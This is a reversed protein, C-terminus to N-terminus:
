PRFVTRGEKEWRELLENLQQKSRAQEGSNDIVDWGNRSLLLVKRRARELNELDEFMEKTDVRGQIRRMAINPDIDVLLLGRPVPLFKAFFDYGKQMLGEPLYATGMLYRVFIIVQEGRRQRKLWGVSTLVDIIYFVSAILRMLPGNSQLAKRAVKGSFRESPHTRVLVEQGDASYREAIWHAFTNKGSGDIGDIVLWRM